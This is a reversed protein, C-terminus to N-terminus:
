EAPEWTLPRLAPSPPPPADDGKKEEEGEEEDGDGDGDGNCCANRSGMIYWLHFLFCNSRRLFWRFLRLIPVKALVSLPRRLIM